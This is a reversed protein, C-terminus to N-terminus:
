RGAPDRHPPRVEVIDRHIKVRPYMSHLEQLISSDKKIDRMRTAAEWGPYHVTVSHRPAPPIAYGKATQIKPTM